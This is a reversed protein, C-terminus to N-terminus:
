VDCKIEGVIMKRHNYIRYDYTKDFFEYDRENIIGLKKMFEVLIREKYKSEAQYTKIVLAQKREPLCAVFYGNAGSKVIIKENAKDMIHFDLRDSGSAYLPNEYISDLILQAPKQLNDPLNQYDAMRAMGYAFDKIRLAHVPVSCGDVGMKIEEKKIQCLECIMETIAVQVKNTPDTYRKVDEGMLIAGALMGSHKGSCNNHIATPKIDNKVMESKVEEKFPYHTGCQLYSEDLGIKKLIGRVCDIHIQEGSHSACIQSIEQGTLDFKDATGMAITAMAQMLKASSRPYAYESSDGKEYIVNGKSDVLVITGYTFLDEVEGRYTTALIEM